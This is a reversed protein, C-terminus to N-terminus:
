KTFNIFYYKCVTAFPIYYKPFHLSYPGRDSMAMYIVTPLMENFINLSISFKAIISTGSM